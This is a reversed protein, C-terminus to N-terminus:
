DSAAATKFALVAAVKKRPALIQNKGDIVMQTSIGGDFEMASQAGLEKFIQACDMYSLKKGALLLLTKGDDCIGAAMRYNKIDKFTFIKDDRLITWFGGAAIALNNENEGQIEEIESQSDIIRATYGEASKFLCLACYKSVPSSIMKENEIQLGALTGDKHFPTTNIVIQAGTKKAFTKPTLFKNKQPASSESFNTFIKLDPETLDIKVIKCGTYKAGSVFIEDQQSFRGTTQCGAVFLILAASLLIKFKLQKMDRWKKNM